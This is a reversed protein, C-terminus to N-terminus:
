DLFISYAIVMSSMLAPLILFNWWQKDTKSAKILQWLTFFIISNILILIIYILKPYSSFTELLIFVILSTFLPLLYNYKM